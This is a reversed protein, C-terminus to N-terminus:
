AGKWERREDAIRLITYAAQIAQFQQAAAKDGPKVDPHNAKAMRRYAKKIDDFVCDPALDFLDLARMEDDSRSGDGSGVWGHYSAETYGGADRKEQQERAAAEEKDLGQFYDWNRNYEGAHKECFHWREPSNPSKPAPCNGAAECGHRDCLKVTQAERAAGYSRWRPFGWDVSRKSGAM